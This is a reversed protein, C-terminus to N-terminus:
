TIQYKIVMKKMLDDITEEDDSYDVDSDNENWFTRPKYKFPFPEEYIPKSERLTSVQDQTTTNIKVLAYAPTTKLHDQTTTPTKLQDQTMTPTKLQDQTTTLTKLQDKTMPTKLQDQTTTLTKLLDFICLPGGDVHHLGDQGQDYQGGAGQHHNQPM